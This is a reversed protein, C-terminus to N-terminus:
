WVFPVITFTSEVDPTFLAVYQTLLYSEPLLLCKGYITKHHFLFNVFYNLNHMLICNIQIGYFYLGDARRSEFGGIM